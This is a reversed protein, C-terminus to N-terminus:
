IRAAAIAATWFCGVSTIKSVSFDSLTDFVTASKTPLAADNFGSEDLIAASLNAGSLNAGEWNTLSLDANSLVIGRLDCDSFDIERLSVGTFDREGAAYRRPLEEKDM